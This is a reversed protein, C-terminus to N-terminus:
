ARLFRPWEVSPCRDMVVKLGANEALAAAESNVIGLQMWITCLGRPILHQIAQEVIPMVNESRRFIDVMQVDGLEAPITAFDAYIMEGNLKKGAQVPNVPIVRYGSRLLFRMVGSSPRAPSVSAGVMAITHTERVIQRLFDDSYAANM